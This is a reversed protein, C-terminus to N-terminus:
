LTCYYKQKTLKNTSEQSGVLQVTQRRDVTMTTPKSTKPHNAASPQVCKQVCLVTRVNEGKQRLSPNATTTFLFYHAM